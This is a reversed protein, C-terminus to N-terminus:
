LYKQKMIYLILLLYEGKEQTINLKIGNLWLSRLCGLYGNTIDKKSGVSLAHFALPRGIIAKKSAISANRDLYIAIEQINYEFVM